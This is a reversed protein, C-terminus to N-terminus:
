PKRLRYFQTAGGVPLTVTVLDGNATPTAGVNISWVAGTGVSSSTELVFGVPSAPWSLTLQNGVIPGVVIGPAPQSLQVLNGANDYAYSISKGAGYDAFILRGAPDYTYSVVGASAALALAALLVAILHTTKM